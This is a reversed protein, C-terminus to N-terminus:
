GKTQEIVLELAMLNVGVKSEANQGGSELNLKRLKEAMEPWLSKYNSVKVLAEKMGLITPHESLIGSLNGSLKPKKDGGERYTRMVKSLGFMGPEALFSVGRSPLQYEDRLLNVLGSFDLDPFPLHNTSMFKGSAAAHGMLRVSKDKDITFNNGSLFMALLGMISVGFDCEVVAGTNQLRERFENTTTRSLQLAGGVLNWDQTLDLLFGFEKIVDIDKEEFVVAWPSKNVLWGVLTEVGPAEIVKPDTMVVCYDWGNSKNDKLFRFLGAHCAGAMDVSRGDVNLAAYKVNSSSSQLPELIKKNKYTEIYEAM